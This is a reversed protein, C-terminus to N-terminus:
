EEIGPLAMLGFFHPLLNPASYALQPHLIGPIRLYASPSPSFLGIIPASESLIQILWNHPCMTKLLVLSNHIQDERLPDVSPVSRPHLLGRPTAGLNIVSPHNLVYELTESWVIVNDM